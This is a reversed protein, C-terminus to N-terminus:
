VDMGSKLGLADVWDPKGEVTSLLYAMSSVAAGVQALRAALKAPNEHSYIRAQTLGIGVDNIAHNWDDIRGQWDVLEVILSPAKPNAMSATIGTGMELHGVTNAPLNPLAESDLNYFRPWTNPEFPIELQILARSVTMPNLGTKTVLTKQTAGGNLLAAHIKNRTDDKM